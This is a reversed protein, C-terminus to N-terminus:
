RHREGLFLPIARIKRSKFLLVQIPILTQNYPSQIYNQSIVSGGNSGPQDRERPLNDFTGPPKQTEEVSIHFGYKKKQKKLTM